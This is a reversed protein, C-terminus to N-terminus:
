SKIIHCDVFVITKKITCIYISVVFNKLINNNLLDRWFTLRTLLIIIANFIVYMYLIGVWLVLMLFTYSVNYFFQINFLKRLIYVNAVM